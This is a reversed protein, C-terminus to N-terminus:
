QAAISEKKVMKHALALFPTTILLAIVKIAFSIIIINYIYPMIGYLGLFSFIVTDAAQSFCSAIFARATFYKATWRQLGSLVAYNIWEACFFSIFSAVITRPMVSFIAAYHTQMTDSDSPIFYIHILAMVVYFILMLLSIWIAQRATKRGYYEQLLSLGLTGGISYADSATAYLGFLRIQKFVFLNALLISICITATLATKNIRLMGLLFIMIICCQAIFFIENIM